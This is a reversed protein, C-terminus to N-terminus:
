CKCAHLALAAGLQLQLQTSLQNAHCVVCSCLHCCGGPSSRGAGWGVGESGRLCVPIQPGWAALLVAEGDAGNGRVPRQWLAAGRRRQTHVAPPQRRQLMQGDGTHWEEPPHHLQRHASPRAPLEPRLIIWRGLVACSAAFVPLLCPRSGLRYSGTLAQWAGSSHQTHQGWAM